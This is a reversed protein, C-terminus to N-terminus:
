GVRNRRWLVFGLPLAAALVAYPALSDAGARTDVRKTPGRGLARRAARVVPGVGAAPGFSRGGLADALARTREAGEGRLSRYGEDVRGGPDFLRDAADGVRVVITSIRARAFVSRLRAGDFDVSEGDTVVIALRRHLTPEFLLPLGSLAGFRTATYAFQRPPPEDALVAKRLGLEFTARSATALSHPLLVDSFSALGLRVEDLGEAVSRAVHKAQALRTPAHASRRALMSLSRDLVVIAEADTRVLRPYNRDVVPQAAALALLGATAALALPVPLATVLRPRSLGLVRRVRGSRAEALLVAGLPLLVAIAVLAADPTLFHV